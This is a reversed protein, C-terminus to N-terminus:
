IFRQIILALIVVIGICIVCALILKMIKGKDM